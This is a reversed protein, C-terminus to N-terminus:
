RRSRRRRPSGTSSRGARAPISRSSRALARAHAIAVHVLAAEPVGTSRGMRALYHRGAALLVDRPVLGVLESGTVRLGRAARASTAPTSSSTCRPRTSTPSTSRSRRAASSPSRGASRRSGRSCHRAGLDGRGGRRAGAQRERRAEQAGERPDDFAVRTALRKDLTNLNVNYAVLFKRAGIVTAGARPLFAAPGFDPRWRRIPSSTAGAGRVRRRPHRRPQPARARTAAFEYLYVPLGLERGVREGLRRALEVCDEMTVGAVPVFPVVDVAGIRAHAGRHTSMDIRELAAVLLQFAGELVAEPEGVFTIVTRNTEAGPDVDLVTVGPM